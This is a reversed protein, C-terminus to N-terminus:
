LTPVVKFAEALRGDPLGALVGNALLWGRVMTELQGEPLQATQSAHAHLAALKVESTDTVDVYHDATHHAMLWVEAVKWDALGEERLLSPHAYPNRADPYVATIAAEGAALHDPHSAAIRDWNREPSQILVRQPRVERIVRSIDRRLDQTVRLDGDPYGLFRVDDVGAREAAAVQEARRIGPIRSREVGPDFGGADGDTCVLYTVTVGSRTWAAM